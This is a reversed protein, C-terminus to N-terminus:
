ARRATPARALELITSAAVARLRYGARNFGYLLHDGVAAAHAIGLSAAAIPATATLSRGDRTSFLHLEGARGIGCLIGGVVAVAVGGNGWALDHVFRGGVVMSGDAPDLGAFGGGRLSEWDYDDVGSVLESGAAWLLRGDGLFAAPQFDVEVQWRPPGVRGDRVPALGVRGTGGLAVGDRGGVTVAGLATVPGWSELAVDADVPGTDAGPALPESVLVGGARTERPRSGVLRSQVAVVREMDEVFARTWLPRLQRVPGGAPIESACFARLLGLHNLAVVVDAGSLELIAHVDLDFQSAEDEDPYETEDFIALPRFTRSAVVINRGLNNWACREGLAAVRGIGAPQSNKVRTEPHADVEASLM